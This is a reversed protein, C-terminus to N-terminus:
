DDYSAVMDYEFGRWGAWAGFLHWSAYSGPLFALAGVACMAVGRDYETRLAQVGYFLMLSGLAFLSAAAFVTWAVSRPRPPTYSIHLPPADADASPDVATTPLDPPLARRM